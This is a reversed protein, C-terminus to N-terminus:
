LDDGAAEQNEGEDVETVDKVPAKEIEKNRDIITVRRRLQNKFRHSTRGTPYM